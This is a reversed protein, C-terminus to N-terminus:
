NQRNTKVAYLKPMVQNRGAAKAQYLMTDAAKVLSDKNDHGRLTAVGFSATKRLKQGGPITIDLNEIIGQLRQALEMARPMKTDPLVVIFEEGGYRSLYDEKRIAKLIAQSLTKLVADGAPHGYTDNVHKFHDVDFMIISLDRNHRKTSAIHHSILRDFERRNYCGTLSDLAVDDELRKISLYNKLAVGLTKTIIDLIETHHPLMYREPLIYMRALCKEDMLSYSLLNRDHFTLWDHPQHAQDYISHVKLNQITGFDRQIVRKLPEQYIRPDIWIDLRHKDQVAFAFLQYNLIDKLCRGAEQLIAELTLGQNISLIYRNLTKYDIQRAMGCLAQAASAAHKFFRKIPLIM